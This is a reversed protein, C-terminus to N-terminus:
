QEKEALAARCLVEELDTFPSVIEKGAAVLAALSDKVKWEDAVRVDSTYQLMHLYEYENDNESESLSPEAKTQAVGQAEKSTSAKLKENKNYLLGQKYVITAQERLWLAKGQARANSLSDGMLGILVNLLLIIQVMMFVCLLFTAFNPAATGEFDPTLSGLMTLFVSYLADRVTGFSGTSDENSIVWFAQAFGLLVCLLTVLFFRVDYMIRLIAAVLPGSSSFPRMFYLTKFWMLVSTIALLVRGYDTDHNHQFRMALGAIGTVCVVLDLVNWFHSFHFSLFSVVKKVMIQKRSPSSFQGRKSHESYKSHCEQIEEFLYLVFVAIMVVNLVIIGEEREGITVGSYRPFKYAFLCLGFLSLTFFYRLMERVHVLRGQEEWYWRLSLSGVPSDFVEVNHLSLSVRLFLAIMDLSACNRLPLMLSTVPQLRRGKDDTKACVSKVSPSIHALLRALLPEGERRSAKTWTSIPACPDSVAMLAIRDPTELRAKCVHSHGWHSSPSKPSSQCDSDNDTLQSLLLSAHNRIPRLSCVFMVMESPFSKALTNLDNVNFMHMAHSLKQTLLDTVDENLRETWSLLITRVAVLDSSEIAFALLSHGNLTKIHPLCYTLYKKFKLLFDARNKGIAHYFLHTNEAFVTTGYVLTMETLLPWDMVKVDSEFARNVEDRLPIHPYSHLADEWLITVEDDGGSFLWPLHKTRQTVSNHPKHGDLSTNNAAVTSEYSLPATTTVLFCVRDVHGVLTQLKEGTLLSWVIVRKDISGTVVLATQTSTKIETGAKMPPEMPPVYLTLATVSESHGRLVRVVDGTGIDWVGVIGDYGATVLLAPEADEDKVENKVSKASESRVNLPAFDTDSNLNRDASSSSLQSFMESRTYKNTYTFAYPNYVQVTFVFDTHLGTFERLCECTCLDWLKATSDYSGTVFLAAKREASDYKALAHPHSRTYTLSHTTTHLVAISRVFNKHTKPVVRVCSVDPPALFDWVRVDRDIGGTIVLPRSLDLEGPSNDDTTEATVQNGCCVPNYLAITLVATKHGKLERLEVGTLLNWVKISADGACSILIPPSNVDEPSYIVMANIRTKHAAFSAFLDDPKTMPNDSGPFPESNTTPKAEQKTEAEPKMLPFPKPRTQGCPHAVIEFLSVSGDIAGICAVPNQVPEGTRPHYVDIATVAKTYMRRTRETRLTNWVTLSKEENGDTGTVLLLGLQSVACVEHVLVPAKHTFVRLREGSLLDWVLTRKDRSSSFVLPPQNDDNAFVSVCTVEAAHEVLSRIKEKAHLDWVVCTKDLSGSVFLSMTKGNNCACHTVITTVKKIHGQLLFSENSGWKSFVRMNKDWSGTVVILEKGDFFASVSLVLDTHGTEIRYCLQGSELMWVSLAKDYSAAVLLTVKTDEGISSDNNLNRNNPKNARLTGGTMENHHWVIDNPETADKAYSKKLYSLDVDVLSFCSISKNHVSKNQNLKYKVELTLPDWVLISCDEGGSVVLGTGQDVVLARIDKKHETFDRLLRLTHLDWVKAKGDQGGTILVSSGGTDAPPHYVGIALVSGIHLDDVSAKYSYRAPLTPAHKDDCFFDFLKNDVSTPSDEETM